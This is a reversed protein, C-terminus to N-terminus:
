APKKPLRLLFGTAAYELELRAEKRGPNFPLQLQEVLKSRRNSRSTRLLDAPSVRLAQAIEELDSIRPVTKGSRWNTYTNKDRVVERWLDSFTRGQESLVESVRQWLLDNLSM